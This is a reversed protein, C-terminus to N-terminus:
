PGVPELPRLGKTPDLPSAGPPTRPLAGAAVIVDAARDAGGAQRVEGQLLRAAEAYSPDDLVARLAARLRRGRFALGNVAIGAGARVVRAAIAAQEFALPVLVAPVGAALADMVTNMGGHGILAAAGALVQAQPVFDRVAPRGALTAIEHAALRGGHAILLDADCDQAARAIDRFLGARHGQLTGLSAFVLRRPGRAPAPPPPSLRLPGVYHFGAPLAARPFDLGPVMQSLQALPSFTDDLNRQPLGHARAWDAIVQSLPRMFLDHVRWGARNRNLGALGPQWNWATFPPPVGAERNVALANAVTIWPLGLAAAALAGAPELQDVVLAALDLRELAAPLVQLLAATRQATLRVPPLPSFPVAGPPPLELRLTDVPTPSAPPPGTHLLTARHGRRCLAAGIALMPNVHGAYPPALLAFHAMTEPVESTARPAHPQQM